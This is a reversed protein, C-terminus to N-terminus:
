RALLVVVPTQVRPLSQLGWPRPPPRHGGMKETTEGMTARTGEHSDGPHQPQPCLTAVLVGRSRPQSPLPFHGHGRLLSAWCCTWAGAAWPGQPRRLPLAELLWTHHCPDMSPTRTQRRSGAEGAAMSSSWPGCAPVGSWFRGSVPEAPLGYLTGARGSRGQCPARM